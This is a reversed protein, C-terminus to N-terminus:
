DSALNGSRIAQVGVKMVEMERFVSTMRKVEAYLKQDRVQPTFDPDARIADQVAKSADQASALISGDMVGEIFAQDNPDTSIVRDTFSKKDLEKMDVWARAVEKEIADAMRQAQHRRIGRHGVAAMSMLVDVMAGTEGGIIAEKLANTEADAVADDDYLYSYLASQGFGAGCHVCYPAKDSIEKECEYCKILAM